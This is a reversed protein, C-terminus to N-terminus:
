EPVNPNIRIRVFKRKGVRVVMGDRIKIKLRQDKIKSRDIEVGGQEILRKAESKSTALKLKILLNEVEWERDEVQKEEIKDPIEGKQVTKEFNEQAKEAAKKGHYLKVIEFALRKKIGMPNQTDDLQKKVANIEQTSLQTALEFYHLILDDKLSMVKAYMDNPNETIDITNGISKSMKQGDLGLLLPGTIVIKEKNLVAKMLTRGALMNFTQDTGGIEADVKMAVSDYAQILPYLFEPMFIAQGMRLRKQFMDREIMQQITFNYALDIMGKASIKDWWQSNFKIEAPNKTGAFDLIQRIQEKYIQANKTVEELTLKKRAALKDSPDGIRGTFDGILLIVKHGLNQFERLKRLVVAHGLHIQPSSPDIGLYIKIKEGRRLKEELFEQSPYIKEINRTLLQTIPDQEDVRKKYCLDSRM